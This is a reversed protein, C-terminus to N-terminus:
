SSNDFKPTRNARQVEDVAEIKNLIPKAARYHLTHQPVAIKDLVVPSDRSLVKSWERQYDKYEENVDGAEAEGNGLLLIHPMHLRASALPPYQVNYLTKFPETVFQTAAFM